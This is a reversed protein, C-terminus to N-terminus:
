EKQKLIFNLYQMAVTEFKFTDRINYANNTIKKRLDRNEILIQISQALDDPNGPEVLIGNDMHKIIDSPGAVCNSSICALPVSMAEVLANPFGEYFSPLVFIECNALISSFNQQYGHFVLRESIGLATAENQLNEREVGDGIIHLEWETEKVKAFAKLLITHGKEKALRGVTVINKNETKTPVDIPKVANPIVVVNQNHTNKEIITKSISTQAIIGDAFRYLLRNANDILFGLKLLPGMRNSIYLPVNLFRTALIVYSNFWEGFSLITDPQLKKIQKRIYPLLKLAYILRHHSKRDLEPFIIEIKSDLEWFIETKFLSLITVHHGMEAFQNALNTLAREQGGGALGAGVLCIKKNM